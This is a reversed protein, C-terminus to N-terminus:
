LPVKVANAVQLLLLLTLIKAGESILFRRNQSIHQLKNIIDKLEFLSPLIKLQSILKSIGIDERNNEFLLTSDQLKKAVLLLKQHQRFNFIHIEPANNSCFLHEKSM